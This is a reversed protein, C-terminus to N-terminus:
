GDISVETVTPTNRRRSQGNLRRNMNLRRKWIFLYISM